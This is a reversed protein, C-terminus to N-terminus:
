KGYHSRRPNDATYVTVKTDPRPGADNSRLKDTRRNNGFISFKDFADFVGFGVVTATVEIQVTSMTAMTGDAMELTARILLDCSNRLLINDLNANFTGSNATATIPSFKNSDVFIVNTWPVVTTGGSPTLTALSSGAIVELILVEAPDLTGTTTITFVVDTALVCPDCILPAFDKTAPMAATPDLNIIATCTTITPKIKNFSLLSNQTIDFITSIGAAGIGAPLFLKSDVFPNGQLKQQLDVDSLSSRYFSSPAEPVVAPSARHFPHFYNQQHYETARFDGEADRDMRGSVYPSRYLPSFPIQRNLFAPYFFYAGSGTTYLILLLLLAKMM